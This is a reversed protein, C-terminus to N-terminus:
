KYSVEIELYNVYTFSMKVTLLKGWIYSIM